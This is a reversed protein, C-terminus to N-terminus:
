RLLKDVCEDSLLNNSSFYFSYRILEFAADLLSPGLLKKTNRELGGDHREILVEKLRCSTKSFYDPSDPHVINGLIDSFLCRIERCSTEIAIPLTVENELSIPSNLGVILHDRSPPDITM